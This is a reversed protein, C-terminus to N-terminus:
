PAAFMYGRHAVTQLISQGQEGLAARIGRVCRVLSNETVFVNPWVAGMLEDKSVIRGRHEM